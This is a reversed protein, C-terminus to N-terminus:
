IINNIHEWEACMALQIFFIAMIKQDTKKTRATKREAMEAGTIPLCNRAVSDFLQFILENQTYV